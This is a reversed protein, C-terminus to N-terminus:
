HIQFHCVKCSETSVILHEKSKGTCRPETTWTPSATWHECLEPILGLEGASVACCNYSQKKCGWDFIFSIKCCDLLNCKLKEKSLDATIQKSVKAYQQIKATTFAQRHNLRFSERGRGRKGNIWRLVFSNRQCQTLPNGHLYCGEGCLSHGPVPAEWSIQWFQRVKAKM